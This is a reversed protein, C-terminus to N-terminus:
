EETKLWSPIEMTQLPNYALNTRASGRISLSTLDATHAVMQAMMESALADKRDLNALVAGEIDASIFHATVENQQGFRWCRRVSQYIQEWSDNLGVFVMDACHQWNMGFGAISPKTVLVRIKGSAFDIMSREKHEDSDSGKVEVAGSASAVRSSEDNLNCWIIWPKGPKASVIRVCERVRDSVTDRRARIRDQLTSAQLAFLLGDPAPASSHVVHAIRKLPPLDYRSGEYGIDRPHAIMVSWSCMWEWFDSSAHGKLRWKQTEGGDHVFFTSLMETHSMVGLFEAHNGLEMYDNPAPTATAALRFPTQAFSEILKTKTAGDVSKLISSEDLVVGGFRELDLKHVKQYNVISVGSAVDAADAVQRAEIGFKQGERVMQAAVALPTIILVGRGTARYVADAWALEMLSKGLGTGAFVAARGRRLAWAVIDRQFDFLAAPLDPVDALGTAPDRIAKSAVFDEYIM